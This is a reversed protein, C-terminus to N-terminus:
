WAETVGYVVGEAADALAIRWADARAVELDPLESFEAEGVATRWTLLPEDQGPQTVQYRITVTVAYIASVYVDEQEDDDSGTRVQGRSRYAYSVVTADLVCDAASEDDLVRLSGDRSFGARLKSQALSGLRPEDTDNAVAPIAITRVDPHMVSGTHYRACGGALILCAACLAILRGIM